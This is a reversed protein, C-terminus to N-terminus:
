PRFILGALEDFHCSCPYAVAYSVADMYYDWSEQSAVIRRVIAHVQLDAIM